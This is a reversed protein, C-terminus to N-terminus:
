ATAGERWADLRTRLENPIRMATIDASIIVLTISARAVLAEDSVRRMETELTFSSTGVAGLRLDIRIEEFLGVAILYECQTARTVTAWGFRERLTDQRLGERYFFETQLNEIKPFWTAFYLLGSPDTDGYGLRITRSHLVPSRPTESM